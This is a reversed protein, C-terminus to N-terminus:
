ARALGTLRLSKGGFLGGGEWHYRLVYSHSSRREVGAEVYRAEINATVSGSGKREGPDPLASQVASASLDGDSGLEITNGGSFTLKLSELAHSGEVPAVALRRGDDEAKARLVLPIAHAKEVVEAPGKKGEQWSNWLGLASIALASLAIIEGFTIWRRRARRESETPTDSM